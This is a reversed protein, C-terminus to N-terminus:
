LSATMVPSVDPQLQYWGGKQWFSGVSHAAALLLELWHKYGAAAGIISKDCTPLHIDQGVPCNPGLEAAYGNQMMQDDESCAM